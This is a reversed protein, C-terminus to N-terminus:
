FVESLEAKGPCDRAISFNSSLFGRFAKEAADRTM